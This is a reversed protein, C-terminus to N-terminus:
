RDVAGSRGILPPHAVVDSHVSGTVIASMLVISIFLCSFISATVFFNIAQM